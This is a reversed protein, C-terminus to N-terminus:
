ALIAQGRVLLHVDVFARDPKREILKVLSPTAWGASPGSDAVAALVSLIKAISGSDIPRLIRDELADVGVKKMRGLADIAGNKTRKSASASELEAILRPTAKKGAKALSEIAPARAADDESDLARVLADFADRPARAPAFAGLGMGIVVLVSSVLAM